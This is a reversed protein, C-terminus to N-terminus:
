PPADSSSSAAPALVRVALAVHGGVGVNHGRTAKSESQWGTRCVALVVAEVVALTVLVAVREAVPVAVAVAVIELVADTNGEGDDLQVSICRTPARATNVSAPMLMLAIVLQPPM